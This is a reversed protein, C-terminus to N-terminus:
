RLSKIYRFLLKGVISRPGVHMLMGAFHYEIHKAWFAYKYDEYGATIIIRSPEM